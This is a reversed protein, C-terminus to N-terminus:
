IDEPGNTIMDKIDFILFEAFTNNNRRRTMSNIEKETAINQIQDKLNFIKVQQTIRRVAKAQQDKDIYTTM